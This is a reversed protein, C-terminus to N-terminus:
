SLKNIIMKVYNKWTFKRKIEKSFNIKLTNNGAKIMLKVFMKENTAVNVYKKLEPIIASKLGIVPCGVSLAELVPLNFSEYHSATLLATANQYLRKLKSRSANKTITYLKYDKYDKNKKFKKFAQMIFEINKIQHNMGVYLFYKDVRLKENKVKLKRTMELPIGFPIVQIKTGILQSIPVLEDKVKQSSVIIRGSRKFMQTLQNNLRFNDKKSYYQPYFYYALGHCFTIVRGSTYLPIAQNLALFIDNPHVIQEISLRVSSWFRKPMIQQYRFRQREKLWSPKMCFGYVTYDNRQDYLYLATILNRSFVYNGYRNKSECLAGGDISIKM